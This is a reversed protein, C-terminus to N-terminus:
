IGLNERTMLYERVLGSRVIDDVGFIITEFSDMKSLIRSFDVVGSKLNRDNVLDNQRSDGCFIIKSNEGIRTIVSDLEHLTANQYEDMVVITDTLTLGRLFSTSEFSVTKKNKLIDYADARGCLEAFIGYYPAEFVKTKETKNGPLFGMNKTQTDSRIIMIKTAQSKGSLIERLALYIGLFTKGTGASGMMLINKDAEYADFVLKQNNTLPTIRNLSIGTNQKQQHQKAKKRKRNYSGEYGKDFYENLDIVQLM